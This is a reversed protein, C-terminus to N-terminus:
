LTQRYLITNYDRKIEVMGFRRQFKELTKDKPVLLTDGNPILSYIETFGLDRMMQKFQEFYNQFEAFQRITVANVQCHVFAKGDTLKYGLKAFDDVILWNCENM